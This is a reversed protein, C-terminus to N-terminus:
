RALQAAIHRVAARDPKGSQLLPLTELTIVDRPLWEHPIAALCSARAEDVDVASNATVVAVVQEGWESNPVGVVVAAKVGVVGLLAHEVAEAPVNIGGSVIVNDARGQVRL